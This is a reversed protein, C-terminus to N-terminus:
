PQVLWQVSTRRWPPDNDGVLKAANCESIWCIQEILVTAQLSDTIQRRMHAGCDGGDLCHAAAADLHLQPVLVAREGIQAAPTAHEDFKLAGIVEGTRTCTLITLELARAANGVEKRLEQLFVPVNDYPLAPHHKVRAKKKLAPLLKDLHGRWRAPNEGTRHGRATAWDLVAEIRARVRTATEPKATWMPELVKLVMGTDVDQVPTDGIIPVAYTTLTNTWQSAHKVNKWDARKSDICLKAAQGFTVSRARALQQEISRARKAELPDIGQKLLKRLEAARERAEKLSLDDLRGLGMEPTKGTSHHKYIFLWSKTLSSSVQLYLNGGDSYYGPRKVNVIFKATLKHLQYRM